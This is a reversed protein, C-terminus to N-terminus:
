LHLVYWVLLVLVTIASIAALAYVLSDPIDDM